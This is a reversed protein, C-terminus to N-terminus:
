WVQSSVGRSAGRPSVRFAKPHPKFPPHRAVSPFVHSRLHRAVSPLVHSQLHRAVSPLVHSRLHRAVSRLVHSRLHRAVSRLVHSQLHRTIARCSLFLFSPLILHLLSATGFSTLSAESREPLCPSAHIGRWREAPRLLSSKQVAM